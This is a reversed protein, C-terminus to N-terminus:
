DFAGSLLNASCLEQVSRYKSELSYIETTRYGYSSLLPIIALSAAGPGAWGGVVVIEQRDYRVACAHWYRPTRLHALETWQQGVVAQSLTAEGGAGALWGPWPPRSVSEM